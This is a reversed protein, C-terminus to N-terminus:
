DWDQFRFLGEKNGSPHAGLIDVRAPVSREGGVSPDVKASAAAQANRADDLSAKEAQREYEDALAKLRDAIVQDTMTKVTRLLTQAAKLYGKGRRSIQFTMVGERPKGAAPDFAIPVLGVM